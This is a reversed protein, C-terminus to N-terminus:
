GARRRRALAVLLVAALPALAAEGRTAVACGSSPTDARPSSKGGSGSSTTSGGSSSTGGSGSQGGSSSAGGSAIAGGTSNSGGSSSSGGSGPAGGSSSSGGTGGSGNSGGSGDSGGSASVGGSGNAGASGRTGAAGGAAGSGSGGGAGGSASGSAGSTIIDACHHYYCSPATHDTMVMVVQLACPKSATCSATRPITVKLSLMGTQLTSTSSGQPLGDAIIPQSTSWVPNSMISPVCMAGTQFTQEPMTTLTQTSSPGEALGVRWWGKHAITSEVVISITQAGTVDTVISTKTGGGENGCPGTKQPSGMSDQSMWSVPMKVDTPSIEIADLMFHAEARGAVLVDLLGLFSLAVLKRMTAGSLHSRLNRPRRDVGRRM